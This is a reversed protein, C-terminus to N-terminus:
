RLALGTITTFNIFDNEAELDGFLEFIEQVADFSFGWFAALGIGEIFSAVATEITRRKLAAYKEPLAAADIYERKYDCIHRKILNKLEELNRSQIADLEKNTYNNM